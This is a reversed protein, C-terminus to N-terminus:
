ITSASSICRRSRGSYSGSEGAAAGAAVGAAAGVQLGALFVVEIRKTRWDHQFFECTAQARGGCVFGPLQQLDRVAQQRHALTGSGRAQHATQHHVLSASTSLERRFYELHPMSYLTRRVKVHRETPAAFEQLPHRSWPARGRRQATEKGSALRHFTAAGPM